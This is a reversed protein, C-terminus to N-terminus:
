YVEALPEIQPCEDESIKLIKCIRNIIKQHTEGEFLVEETTVYVSPIGKGSAHYVACALEEIEGKILGGDRVCKRVDESLRHCKSDPELYFVKSSHRLMAYMRYLGARQQWMAEFCARRFKEGTSVTFTESATIGIEGLVGDFLDRLRRDDATTRANGSVTFCGRLDAPTKATWYAGDEHELIEEVIKRYVNHRRTRM